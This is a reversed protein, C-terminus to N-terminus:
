SQSGKKHPDRIGLTFLKGLFGMPLWIPASLVVVFFTVCEHHVKDGELRLVLRLGVIAIVWSSILWTWIIAETTM